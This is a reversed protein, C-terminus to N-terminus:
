EINYSVELISVFFIGIHIHWSKMFNHYQWEKRSKEEEKKEKWSADEREKKEELTHWRRRRRQRRKRRQCLSDVRAVEVETLFLSFSLYLSFTPYPHSFSIFLALSSVIALNLTLVLHKKVHMNLWIQYWCLLWKVNKIWIKPWEYFTEM